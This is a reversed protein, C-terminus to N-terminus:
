KESRCEHAQVHNREQASLVEGGCLGDARFRDQCIIGVTLIGEPSALNPEFYM